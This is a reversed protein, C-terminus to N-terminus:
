LIPPKKPHSGLYINLKRVEKEKGERLLLPSRHGRPPPLLFPAKGGGPARQTRGPSQGMFHSTQDLGTQGPPGPPPPLWGIEPIELVLWRGGAVLDRGVAAEKDQGWAM